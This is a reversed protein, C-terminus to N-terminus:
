MVTPIYLFAHSGLCAWLSGFQKGSVIMIFSPNRDPVVVDIDNQGCQRFCDIGVILFPERLNSNWVNENRASDRILLSGIWLLWVNLGGKVEREM